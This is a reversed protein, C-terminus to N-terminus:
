AHIKAADFAKQVAKKAFELSRYESSDILKWDLCHRFEPEVFFAWDGEQPNEWNVLLVGFLAKGDRVEWGDDWRGDGTVLRHDESDLQSYTLM